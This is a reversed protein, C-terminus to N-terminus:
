RIIGGCRDYEEDLSCKIKEYEDRHRMILTIVAEELIEQHRSM